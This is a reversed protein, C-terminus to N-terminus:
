NETLRYVDAMAAFHEAMLAVEVGKDHVSPSIAMVPTRVIGTYVLEGSVLREYDTHGEVIAQGGSVAVIDTTTSGIDIFLGHEMKQAAWQASALWNASAIYSYHSYEVQGAPLLGSQGAYVLVRDPPLLQLMLTLIQRVGEQRGSFLDALEGTMTLAHYYDGRPLLTLVERVAQELRNLGKWLECPLQHIAIIGANNQLVAAKLHAGGIDWGIVYDPPM